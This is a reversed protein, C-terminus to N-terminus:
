NDISGTGIKTRLFQVKGAAVKSQQTYLLQAALMKGLQYTLAIARRDSDALQIPYSKTGDRYLLAAKAKSDNAFLD